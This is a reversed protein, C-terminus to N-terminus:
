RHSNETSKINSVWVRYKNIDEVDHAVLIKCTINGASTNLSIDKRGESPTQGLNSSYVTEARVWDCIEEEITIYDLSTTTFDFDRYEKM